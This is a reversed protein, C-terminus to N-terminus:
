CNFGSGLSGSLVSQCLQLLGFPAPFPMWCLPISQDTVADHTHPTYCVQGVPVGHATATVPDGCPSRPQLPAPSSHRPRSFGGAGCGRPLLAPTSRRGAGRGAAGTRLLSSTLTTMADTDISGPDADRHQSFWSLVHDQLRPPFERRLLRPNGELTRRKGGEQQGHPPLLSPAQGGGTGHCSQTGGETVSSLSLDAGDM